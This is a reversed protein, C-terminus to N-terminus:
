ETDEHGEDEADDEEDRLPVTRQRNIEKRLMAIIEKTEPGLMDTAVPISGIQDRLFDILGSDSAPHAGTELYVTVDAYSKRGSSSMSGVDVRRVRGCAALRSPLPLGFLSRRQHIFGNAVWTRRKILSRVALCLMLSSFAFCPIAILSVFIGVGIEGTTFLNGLLVAPLVAFALGMGGMILTIEWRVPKVLGVYENRGGPGREIRLRRWEGQEKLFDDLPKKDDDEPVQTLAPNSAGTRFVPVAFEMNLDAGAMRSTVKLLWNYSDSVSEDGHDGPADSLNYPITFDFPIARRRGRWHVASTRVCQSRSWVAPSDSSQRTALCYLELRVDMHNPFSDPLEVEGTFHGGIVGPVTAMRVRCRGFRWWRALSVLGWAFFGIAGATFLLIFLGLIGWGEKDNPFAVAAAFAAGAFAVGNLLGVLVSAGAHGRAIGGRWRRREWPKRATRTTTMM